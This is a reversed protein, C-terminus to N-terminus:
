RPSSAAWEATKDIGDSEGFLYARYSSGAAAGAPLHADDFGLVYRDCFAQDHLGRAVIERTMAILAAAYVVALNM